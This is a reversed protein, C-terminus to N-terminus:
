IFGVQQQIEKVTKWNLGDPNDFFAATNYYLLDAAAREPTATFLGKKQTIGTQNFLFQPLMQRYRYAQGLLRMKQSRTTVFTLYPLSQFLIGAQILVTETSLYAFDHAVKQGLLIPEIQNLSATTYLGKYIRTLVGQKILRQTATYLTSRNSIGWLMALDSTRFITQGSKILENIKNM